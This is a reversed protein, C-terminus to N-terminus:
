KVHITVVESVIPPDFQVHRSDGLNLQLTHTGPELTITDETQGGGYHRHFEDNPIPRDIMPWESQDILLHHHGSGASAGATPAIAIGEAGFVVRVDKGVTEGDKPSVIFVRAGEPAKQPEFALPEVDPAACAIGSAMASALALLMIPRM